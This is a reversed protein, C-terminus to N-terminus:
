DDGSGRRPRDEGGHEGLRGVVLPLAPGEVLQLPQDALHLVGGVHELLQGPEGAEPLPSRYPDLGELRALAALAGEAARELPDGVEALPDRGGGLADGAAGVTGTVGRVLRGGVVGARGTAGASGGVVVGCAPGRTVAGGTPGGTVVGAPAGSVCGGL